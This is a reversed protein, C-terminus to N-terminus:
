CLADVSISCHTKCTEELLVVERFLWKDFYADVGSYFM